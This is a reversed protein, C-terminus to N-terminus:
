RKQLRDIKNPIAAAKEIPLLGYNRETRLPARDATGLYGKVNLHM